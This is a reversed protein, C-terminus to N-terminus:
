RNVRWGHGNGPNEVLFPHRGGSVKYFVEQPLGFHKSLQDIFKRGPNGNGNAWTSLNQKSIGTKEKVQWDEQGYFDRIIRYNRGIWHKETFNEQVPM